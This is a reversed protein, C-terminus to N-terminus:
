SEAETDRSVVAWLGAFADLHAQLAAHAAETADNIRSRDARYVAAEFSIISAALEKATATHERGGKRAEPSSASM